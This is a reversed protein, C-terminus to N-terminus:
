WPIVYSPPWGTAIRGGRIAQQIDDLDKRIQEPILLGYAHFPALGVQGNALTGVRNGGAEFQGALMKQVMDFVANDMRKMCSTLLCDKVQPLSFFQDVDVGIGWKGHEKAATLGGVGTQGGVGFIVDVGEAIMSEGIAKGKMFNDFSGAYDGFVPVNKNYKSNFYAVGAQYPAIFQQVSDIKMGAVFGVRANRPDMYNAWAAALFGVPFAAEEVSFTLSEVNFMPPYFIGDVMAFKVDPNQNAVRAMAAHMMSGVGIILGCRAHALETLNNVYDDPSRSERFCGEVHLERMARELGEKCSQNFGADNFCGTDSVMGVKLAVKAAPLAAAGGASSPVVPDLPGAAASPVLPWVMSGLGLCAFVFAAMWSRIPTDKM